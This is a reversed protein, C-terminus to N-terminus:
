LVFTAPAARRPVLEGAIVTQKEGDIPILRGIASGGESYMVEVIGNRKERRLVLDYGNIVLTQFVDAKQAEEVLVTAKQAVTADETNVSALVNGPLAMSIGWFKKGNSANEYVGLLKGIYEM